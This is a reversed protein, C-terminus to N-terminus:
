GAELQLGNCFITKIFAFHTKKEGQKKRRQERRAKRKAKRKLRGQEILFDRYSFLINIAKEKPQPMTLKFWDRKAFKGIKKIEEKM